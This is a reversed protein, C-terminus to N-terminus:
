SRGTVMSAAGEHLQSLARGIDRTLADITAEPVNAQQWVLARMAMANISDVEDLLQASAAATPLASNAIEALRAETATAGLWISVALALSAIVCAAPGILVKAWLPLDHFTRVRRVAGPPRPM